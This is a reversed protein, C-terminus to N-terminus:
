RRPREQGDGPVRGPGLPFQRPHVAGLFPRRHDPHEGQSAHGRRGHPRHPSRRDPRGGQRRPDGAPREQGGNRCIRPRGRGQPAAHVRRHDVGSRGGGRRGPRDRGRQDERRYPGHGPRGRPSSGAGRARRRRGGASALGGRRRGLAHRPHRPPHTGDHLRYATRRHGGALHDDAGVARTRQRHEGRHRHRQAHRCQPPLNTALSHLGSRFIPIALSSATLAPVTLFRGAFTAPGHGLPRRFFYFVLTATTVGIRVLMESLSGEQLRRENVTPRNQEAREAKYATLSYSGIVLEALEVADQASVQVQDYRLLVNQTLVNVKAERVPSLEELRQRIEAAYAGLYRLARCDVRVRGPLSHVVECHLLPQRKRWFM